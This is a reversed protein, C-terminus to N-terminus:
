PVLRRAYKAPVGEEILDRPQMGTGYTFVAWRGRTKKLYVEELSLGQHKADYWDIRLRGYDGWTAGADFSIRRTRIHSYRHGSARYWDEFHGYGIRLYRAGPHAAAFKELVPRYLPWVNSIPPDAPAPYAANLIGILLVFTFIVRM